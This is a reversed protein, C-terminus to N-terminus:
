NKLPAGTEAGRDKSKSDIEAIGLCDRKIYGARGYSFCKGADSLAQIKPDSYVLRETM